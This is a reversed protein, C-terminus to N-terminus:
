GRDPDPLHAGCRTCITVVHTEDMARLTVADHDDDACPRVYATAIVKREREVQDFEDWLPDSM